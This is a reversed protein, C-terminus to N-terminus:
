LGVFKYDHSEFWKILIPLAAVTDPTGALPNHLLVVPNRLQISQTEVSQVIKNVDTQSSTGAYQWDAPDVSWEWNTLHDSTCLEETYVNYDGGPPRFV